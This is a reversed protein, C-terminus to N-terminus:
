ISHPPSSPSLCVSTLRSSGMCESWPYFRGGLCTGQRSCVQLREPSRSLVGTLWRALCHNIKWCARDLASNWSIMWIFNNILKKVVRKKQVLDSVDPTHKSKACRPKPLGMEFTWRGCMALPLQVALRTIWKTPVALTFTDTQPLCRGLYIHRSHVPIWVLIHGCVNVASNNRVALLRFLGLAWWSAISLCLTTWEYVPINSLWSFSRLASGSAVIHISRSFRLSPSFGSVFPRVTNGNIHLTWILSSWLPLFHPLPITLSQEPFCPKKQPPPSFTRSSSPLAPQM